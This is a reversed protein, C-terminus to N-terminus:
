DAPLTMESQRLRICSGIEKLCETISTFCLRLAISSESEFAKIKILDEISDLSVSKKILYVLTTM